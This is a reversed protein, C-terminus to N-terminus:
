VLSKRLRASIVDLVVVTVVIIIIQMATEGYHFAQISQILTQGIGGAGVFGLTTASRVNTELRYLTLSSWLPTVQPIIGYIVEEVRGAGASRIGEVPRPDIAEVTESFLKSIVGLNHVFLAMVGAFPGLGVAVTFMLAFVIENIARCADMLRRVPQVVWWPCVNSSALISFPIAAVVALATGWIAIQVTVLMDSAFQRWDDLDPSLFGAAFKAMNSSDAFLKVVQFMEAPQWSWALLGLIVAWVLWTLLRERLPRRPLVLPEGNMETM